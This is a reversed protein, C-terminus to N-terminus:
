PALLLRYTRILHFRWVSAIWPVIPLGLGAPGNTITWSTAKNIDGGASQLQSMEEDAVAFAMTGDACKVGYVHPDPITIGMGITKGLTVDPYQQRFADLADKGSVVPLLPAENALMADLKDSDSAGRGPAAMNANFNGATQPPSKADARVVIWSIAQTEINNVSYGTQQSIQDTATNVADVAM